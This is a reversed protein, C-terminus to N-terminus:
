IHMLTLLILGAIILFQTRNSFLNYAAKDLVYKVEGAVKM